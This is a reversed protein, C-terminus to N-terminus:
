PRKPVLIILPDFKRTLSGEAPLECYAFFRVTRYTGREDLTFTKTDIYGDGGRTIPDEDGNYLEEYLEIKLDTLPQRTNTNDLYIKPFSLRVQEARFFSWPVAIVVTNHHDRLDLKVNGPLEAIMTFDDPTQGAPNTIKYYFRITAGSSVWARVPPMGLIKPQGLASSASRDEREPPAGLLLRAAAHLNSLLNTLAM